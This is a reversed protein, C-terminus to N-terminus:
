FLSNVKLILKKDNKLLIQKFDQSLLLKDIKPKLFRMDHDTYTMTKVRNQVEKKVELVYKM